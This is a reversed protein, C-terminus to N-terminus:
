FATNSTVYNSLLYGFYWGTGSFYCHFRESAPIFSRKQRSPSWEWDGPADLRIGESYAPAGLKMTERCFELATNPKLLPIDEPEESDSLSYSCACSHSGSDLAVARRATSARWIWRCFSLRVIGVNFPGDILPLEVAPFLVSLTGMVMLVLLLSQVGL